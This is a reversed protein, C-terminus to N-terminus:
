KKSSNINFTQESRKVSPDIGLWKISANTEGLTQKQKEFCENCMHKGKEIIPVLLRSEGDILKNCYDCYTKLWPTKSFLRRYGGAVKEAEEDQVEELGETEKLDNESM